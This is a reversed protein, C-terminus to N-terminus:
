NIIKNFKVDYGKKLQNANNANNKNNLKDHPVLEPERYQVLSERPKASDFSSNDPLPDLFTGNNNSSSSNFSSPSNNNLENQMDQQVKQEWNDREMRNDSM